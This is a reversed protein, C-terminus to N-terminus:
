SGMFDHLDQVIAQVSSSVKTKPPILQQRDFDHDFFDSTFVKDSFELRKLRVFAPAYYYAMEAGSAWGLVDAFDEVNSAEEQKTKSDRRNQLLYRLTFEHRLYHPTIHKLGARHMAKRFYYDRFLRDSIQRGSPNLFLPQNVVESERLSLQSRKLIKGNIIRIEDLSTGTISQRETQIYELFRIFLTEPLVIQKTRIGNSGKNSCFIARGLGARIWDGVTLTIPESIRAGTYALIHTVIKIGAPFQSAVELVSDRYFRDFVYDVSIQDPRGLVNVYNYSNSYRRRRSRAQLLYAAEREKITLQMPNEDSWRGISILADFCDRLLHLAQSAKTPSIVVDSLRQNSENSDPRPKRPSNGTSKPPRAVQSGDKRKNIWVKYGNHKLARIAALRTSAFDMFLDELLGPETCIAIRLFDNLGSLYQQNTREERDSQSFVISLSLSLLEHPRHDPGFAIHSFTQSPAVITEFSQGSHAYEGYLNDAQKEVFNGNLPQDDYTADLLGGGSKNAEKFLSICSQAYSLIDHVQKRRAQSMNSPKVTAM